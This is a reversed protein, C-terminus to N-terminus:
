IYGEGIGSTVVTLGSVTLRLATSISVDLLYAKTVVGPAIGSRRLDRIM